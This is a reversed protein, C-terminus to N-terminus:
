SPGGPPGPPHHLKAHLHATGLSDVELADSESLVAAARAEAASDPVEVSVLIRGAQIEDMFFPEEESGAAAGLLGGSVAGTAGGTVLGM